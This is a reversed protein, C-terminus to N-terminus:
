IVKSKFTLIAKNYDDLTNIQFWFSLKSFYIDKYNLFVTDPLSYEGNHITPKIDFFSYNLLYLGSIAYNKKNFESEKQKRFCKIKNRYIDVIRYRADVKTKYVGVSVINKNLFGKIDSKKFLDDGNLVLFKKERKLFKKASNLAGWTGRFKQSQIVFYVDQKFRNKSLFSKFIHLHKRQVVLIVDNIDLPLTDFIYSLIEKNNIKLLPKPVKLTLPNLRTGNGGCLIVAKM